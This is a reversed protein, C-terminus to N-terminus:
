SSLKLYTVSTSVVRPPIGSAAEAILAQKRESKLQNLVFVKRPNESLKVDSDSLLQCAFGGAGVQCVKRLRGLYTVHAYTGLRVNYALYLGVHDPDDYIVIM